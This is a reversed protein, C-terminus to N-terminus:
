AIKKKPAMTGFVTAILAGVAACPIVWSSSDVGNNNAYIWVVAFTSVPFPAIMMTKTSGLVTRVVAGLFTYMVPIAIALDGNHLFWCAILEVLGGLPWSWSPLNRFTKALSSPDLLKVVGTIGFLGLLYYKIYLYHEAAVNNKAFNGLAEAVPAFAVSSKDFVEPAMEIVKDMM